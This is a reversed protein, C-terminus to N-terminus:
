FRPTQPCVNGENGEGEGTMGKKPERGQLKRSSSALFLKSRLSSFSVTQVITGPLAMAIKCKNPSSKVSEM